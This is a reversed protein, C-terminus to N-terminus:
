KPVLQHSCNDCVSLMTHKLKQRTPQSIEMQNPKRNRQTENDMIQDYYWDIVANAPFFMCIM